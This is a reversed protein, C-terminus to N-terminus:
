NKNRVVYRPERVYGVGRYNAGYVAILGQDKMALEDANAQWPTLPWNEMWWFAKQFDGVFWYEKANSASLNLGDAATARNYWIASMPMVNYPGGSVASIQATSMKWRSPFNSNLQTGVQLGSGFLQERFKLERAPMCLIDRGMISIERGTDPDTMGVFLQRADDIDTEDSFANSHDNIWPSATQYTSYSTGNRNYSSSVGLVLDAIDKEMGYALEDGVNGAEDLVDGTLDFFVAERTVKCKLAQEVTEPTTQFNSGFGIETHAEGPQRGKAASTQTRMRSIGILKQGNMKTPKITVLNRGIYDPHMFREIIEANVLGSISLNFTNIDVFASPDIASEQLPRLGFNFGNAPHYYEEVFEHGMISEALHRLSVERARMRGEQLVPMNNEDLQIRPNGYGDAELGLLGFFERLANVRGQARNGNNSKAETLRGDFIKRLAKYGLM